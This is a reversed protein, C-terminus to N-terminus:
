RMTHKLLSDGPHYFNNMLIAPKDIHVAGVHIRLYAKGARTVDPSIDTMEVQVLGKGYRVTTAPRSHAGDQAVRLQSLEQRCVRQYLRAATM